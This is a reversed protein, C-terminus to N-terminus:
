QVHFKRLACRHLFLTENDGASPLWQNNSTKSSDEIWYFVKKPKGEALERLFAKWCVKSLFVYKVPWLFNLSSAM